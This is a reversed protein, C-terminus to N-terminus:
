RGFFGHHCASLFLEPWQEFRHKALKLLVTRGVLLREKCGLVIDQIARYFFHLDGFHEHLKRGNGENAKLECRGLREQDISQKLTSFLDSVGQRSITVLRVLAM